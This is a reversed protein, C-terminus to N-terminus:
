GHTRIYRDIHRLMLPWKKRRWEQKCRYLMKRQMEDITDHWWFDRFRQMLKAM